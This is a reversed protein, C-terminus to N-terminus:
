HNIVAILSNRVPQAHPPLCTEYVLVHDTFVETFLKLPKRSCGERANQTVMTCRLGSVIASLWHQWVPRSMLVLSERTTKPRKSQCVVEGAQRLKTGSLHKVGKILGPVTHTLSYQYSRTTGSYFMLQRQKQSLSSATCGTERCVLCTVQVVRDATLALLTLLPFCLENHRAKESQLPLEQM